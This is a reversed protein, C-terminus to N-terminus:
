KRINKFNMVRRIKEAISERPPMGNEEGFLLTRITYAVGEDDNSPAVHDAINKIEDVGNGMAVGIGATELMAGDNPSDGFAIVNEMTIDLDRCLSSIAAAKSTNRGGVEINNSYSSTVTIGDIAELEERVRLRDKQFEFHINVNEIRSINELWFSYIDPVPRRTRLIYRYGMYTSGNQALDDYLKQDVYAKAETFVEVPFNREMFFKRVELAADRDIYDSYLFSGDAPNIIHAGNSVIVYELGKISLVAEPLAAFPRGTAIVVRYGRAIAEELTEKTRRTLGSRTLTTGDLDLAIMKIKELKEKDIM